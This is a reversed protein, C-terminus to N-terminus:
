ILKLLTKMFNMLIRNKGFLTKKSLLYDKENKGIQIENQIIPIECVTIDLLNSKVDNKKIM